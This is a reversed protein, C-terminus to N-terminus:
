KRSIDSGRVGMDRASPLPLTALTLRGSEVAMDVRVYARCSRDEEVQKLVEEVSRIPRAKTNPCEVIDPRVALFVLYILNSIIHVGTIERRGFIEVCQELRTLTGRFM